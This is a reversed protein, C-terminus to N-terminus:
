HIPYLFAMWPAGANAIMLAMVLLLVLVIPTLWWKKEERLFLVLEKVLARRKVLVFVITGLMLSLMGLFVYKM